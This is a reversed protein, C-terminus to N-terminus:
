NGEYIMINGSVDYLPSLAGETYLYIVHTNRDALAVTNEGFIEGSDITIFLERDKPFIYGTYTNYHFSNFINILLLIALVFAAALCSLGIYQKISRIM